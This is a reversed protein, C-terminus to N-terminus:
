ARSIKSGWWAQSGTTSSFYQRSGLSWAAPLITRRGCTNNGGAELTVFTHSGAVAAPTNRGGVSTGDGLQGWFHDGWCFARGEATLGCAHANGVTVRVFREPTSVPAPTQGGAIPESIQGWQSISGWCHVVGGVEIGCTFRSGAAVSEFEIDGVVEIPEESDEGTGDGFQFVDNLGWCMAVGELTVGCRFHAGTSLSSFRHDGPVPVPSAGAGSWCFASGDATLGCTMFNSATISAFTIGGPVSLPTKPGNNSNSEEISSAGWCYALGFHDLGCTHRAGTDIDRLTLGGLVARPVGSASVQDNGLQGFSNDGWCYASGSEALGCAFDFFGGGALTVEAWDVPIEEGHDGDTPENPSDGCAALILIMSLRLAQSYPMTRAPGPPASLQGVPDAEACISAMGGEGLEREIAYRGELAANLRTVPDPM